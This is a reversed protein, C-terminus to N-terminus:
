KPISSPPPTADNVSRALSNPLNETCITASYSSPADFQLCIKCSAKASAHIRDLAASDGAMLHIRQRPLLVDMMIHVLQHWGIHQRYQSHLRQWCPKARYTHVDLKVGFHWMQSLWSRTYTQHVSCRTARYWTILVLKLQIWAGSSSTCIWIAPVAIRGCNSMQKALENNQTLSNVNASTGTALLSQMSVPLPDGQM